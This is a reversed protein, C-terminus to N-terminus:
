RPRSGSTTSPEGGGAQGRSAQGGGAQGRAPVAAVATFLAVAVQALLLLMRTTGSREVRVQAAEAPLVVAVLHGWARSVEAAA